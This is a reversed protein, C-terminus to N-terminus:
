LTEIITPLTEKEAKWIILLTGNEAGIRAPEGIFENSAGLPYDYTLVADQLPYSVNQLRVGSVMPDLAFVSFVGSGQVTIISNRVVTLVTNEGYLMGRAGHAMLFLLAQINAVTHDLRGGVGGLIVFNRYGHELGIRIALLTDTDDKRVPHQVVQEAEPVYGLSDFDGVVLDPKVGLANAAAYGGDAAIVMDAATPRIVADEGRYAGIIYCIHQM